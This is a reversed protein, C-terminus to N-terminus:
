PFAFPDHFPAPEEHGERTRQRNAYRVYDRPTSGWAAGSKECLPRADHSTKPTSLSLIKKERFMLSHEEDERTGFGYARNEFRGM